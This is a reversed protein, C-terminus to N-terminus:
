SEVKPMGLAARAEDRVHAPVALGLDEPDLLRRAFAELASYNPTAEVEKRVRDRAKNRERIREMHAMFESRQSERERGGSVFRALELLCARVHDPNPDFTKGLAALAPCQKFIPADYM